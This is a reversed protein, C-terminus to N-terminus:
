LTRAPVKMKKLLTQFRPEARLKTLTPEAGIAYIESSRETFGLELADLASHPQGLVLHIQAIRVAKIGRDIECRELWARYASMPGGEENAKRVAAATVKIGYADFCRLFEAIASEYKGRGEYVLGLMYHPAGEGPSMAVARELEEIAQDSQGSRRLTEGILTPIWPSVPDLDRAVRLERLAEDFRGLRNAIDGRAVHVSTYNPRLEQARRFEREAADWDWDFYARVMGLALHAEASTGDLEVAKLANLRAGPAAEGYGIVLGNFLDTYCAALGSYALSYHPDKEIALQFFEGAAMTGKGFRNMYLRGKMALQYADLREAHPEELMERDRASIEPALADAITISITNAAALSDRPPADFDKSWRARGTSVDLLRVSYVDRHPEERITGELVWDAKLERGAQLPSRGKGDGEDRVPRVAIQRLRGLRSSLEEAVELGLEGNSVSPAASRFPLVVVSLAAPSGVTRSRDGSLRPIVLVALAALLAGTSWWLAPRMTRRHPAAGELAASAPLPTASVEAAAAFSRLLATSAASEISIRSGVQEELILDQEIERVRRVSAVFRYGVKPITEIYRADGESTELIQRLRSVARTLSGEEVFADRWVLKLMEDKEVLHGSREVLACLTDFLKPPLSIPCDDRWLTRETPDLRFPGFEFFQKAQQHM